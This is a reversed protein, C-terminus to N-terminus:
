EFLKTQLQKVKAKVPKQKSKKQSKIVPEDNVYDWVYEVSKGHQTVIMGGYLKCIKRLGGM